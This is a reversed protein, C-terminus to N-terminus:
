SWRCTPGTPPSGSACASATSGAPGRGLNLDAVVADFRREKLLGLAAEGFRCSEIRYDRRGLRQELLRCMERDDDVVLVTGRMVSRRDPHPDRLPQQIQGPHAEAVVAVAPPALALAQAQGHDRSAVETAIALGRGIRELDRMSDTQYLRAHWRMGLWTNVVFVSGVVLLFALALEPALRM